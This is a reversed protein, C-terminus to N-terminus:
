DISYPKVKPVRGLELLRQHTLAVLRAARAQAARQTPYPGISAGLVISDGQQSAHLMGPWGEITLLKFRTAVGIQVTGAVAIEVDTNAGAFQLAAPLDSWRIGDAPLLAIPPGSDPSGALVSRMAATAATGQTTTYSVVSGASRDVRPKSACGGVSMLLM